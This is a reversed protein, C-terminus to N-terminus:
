QSVVKVELILHVRRDLVAELDKRAGIGIEGITAGKTGVVIARVQNCLLWGNPYQQSIACLQQALM